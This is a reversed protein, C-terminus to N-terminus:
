EFIMMGQIIEIVIPAIFLLSIAASAIVVCGMLMAFKTNSERNMRNIKKLKVSRELISLNVILVELNGIKSSKIINVFESIDRMGSRSAWRSLAEEEGVSNIDSLLMNMDVRLSNSDPLFDEITKHFSKQKDSYKYLYLLQLIDKEISINLQKSKSSVIIPKYMSTLIGLVFVLGGTIALAKIEIVLGLFIIPISLLVMKLGTSISSKYEQYNFPLRLRKCKIDFKEEEDQIDVYKKNAFLNKVKQWVENSTDGLRGIMASAQRGPIPIYYLTTSVLFIFIPITVTSSLVLASMIDNTTATYLKTMFSVVADLMIM